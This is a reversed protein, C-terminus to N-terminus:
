DEEDPFLDPFYIVYYKDYFDYLPDYYQKEMHGTEKNKKLYPDRFENNFYKRYEKFTKDHSYKGSKFMRNLEHVKAAFAELKAFYIAEQQYRGLNRMKAAEGDYIEYPIQSEDPVFAGDLMKYPLPDGFEDVPIPPYLGDYLFNEIPDSQLKYQTFALEVEIADNLFEQKGQLTTWHGVTWITLVDSAHYQRPCYLKPRVMFIREHHKMVGMYENYISKCSMKRFYSYQGTGRLYNLMKRDFTYECYMKHMRTNHCLHVLMHPHVMNEPTIIDENNKYWLSLRHMQPGAGNLIVYPIQSADDEYRGDAIKPILLEGYDDTPDPVGMGDYIYDISPYPYLAHTWTSLDYDLSYLIGLTSCIKNRVFDLAEDITEEELEPIVTIPDIEAPQVNIVTEDAM